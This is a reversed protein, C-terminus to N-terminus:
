SFHYSIINGHFVLIVINSTDFCQTNGCFTNLTVDVDPTIIKSLGFDSIKCNGNSDLLINEPKLDRYIVSHKHLHDLALAIQSTYYRVM